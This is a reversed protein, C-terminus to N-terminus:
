SWSGPDRLPDRAAATEIATDGDPAGSAALMARFLRAEAECLAPEKVLANAVRLEAALTALLVENLNRQAAASLGARARASLSYLWGDSLAEVSATRAGGDILANVGFPDGPGMLTLVADRGDPLRRSVRVRGQALIYGHEGPDGQRLILEGAQMPQPLIAHALEQRVDETMAAAGPLRALLPLLSPPRDPHGPSSPADFPPSRHPLSALAADFRADTERVRRCLTTLAHALLADYLPSHARRLGLLGQVRLALLTTPGTPTLTASVRGGSLFAAVEGVLEGPGLLGLEADDSSARLGGDLVVSLEQAPDGRTRFPQDPPPQLVSWYRLSSALAEAPVNNLFPLSALRLAISTMHPAMWSVSRQLTVELMDVSLYRIDAM